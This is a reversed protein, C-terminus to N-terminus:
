HHSWKNGKTEQDTKQNAQIEPEAIKSGSAKTQSGSSEESRKQNEPEGQSQETEEGSKEDSCDEALFKKAHTNSVLRPPIKLEYLLNTYVALGIKKTPQKLNYLFNLEWLNENIRM